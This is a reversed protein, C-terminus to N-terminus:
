EETGSIVLETEQGCGGKRRQSFSCYFFLNNLKEVGRADGVKVDEGVKGKMRRLGRKDTM